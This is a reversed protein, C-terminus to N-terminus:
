GGPLSTCPRGDGDADLNAFDGYEPFYRDFFAKAEPYSAFESCDRDAPRASGPAQAPKSGGGEAPRKPDGACTEAAWLGRGAAEAEAQAARFERQYAHATDYTYELAYGERIMQENYLAGDVRLYGLLRGFRDRRDQSPDYELQVSKGSLLEKARASAERGFCQVPKRPDRTEPTDLGILRVTERKGDVSLKVTDGDVVEVVEYPGRLEGRVQGGRQADASASSEAPQAAPQSAPASSPQMCGTLAVLAAAALAPLHRTRM